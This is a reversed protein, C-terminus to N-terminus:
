GSITPEPPVRPRWMPCRGSEFLLISVFGGPLALLTLVLGVGLDLGEAGRRWRRPFHPGRVAPGDALVAAPQAGGM